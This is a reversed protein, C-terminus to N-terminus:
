KEIYVGNGSLTRVEVTACHLVTNLIVLALDFPQANYHEDILARLDPREPSENFRDDERIRITVEWKGDTVRHISYFKNM